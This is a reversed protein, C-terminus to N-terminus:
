HICNNMSNGDDSEVNSATTVTTSMNRVCMVIINVPFNKKSSISVFWMHARNRVESEREREDQCVCSWIGTKIHTEPRESLSLLFLSIFFFRSYVFVMDCLSLLTHVFSFFRGVFLLFHIKMSRMISAHSHRHLPPSSMLIFSRIRIKVRYVNLKKQGTAVM